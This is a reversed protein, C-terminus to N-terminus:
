FFHESIKLIWNSISSTNKPGNGYSIKTFFHEFGWMHVSACTFRSFARLVPVFHVFICKKSLVLVEILACLVLDVLILFHEKECVCCVCFCHYDLAFLLVVM